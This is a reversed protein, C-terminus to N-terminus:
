EQIFYELDIKKIEYISKSTVGLNFDIMYESLKNGDILAVKPDVSTAYKKADESFRGTTIFIGKRARKGHLVGVFREIEPREVTGELRKAQLYIVDLGLRDEKIIGDIIEDDSRGLSIGAEAKSGGYGLLVMLDVLLQEFFDPSNNKIKLLINAGLESRINENAQQFIEELTQDQEDLKNSTDQDNSSKQPSHAEVFKTFQDLIRTDIRPLGQRHLNLGRETIKFHENSTSELVKAQVFHSKAWAILNDFESIKQAGTPLLEVKAEESLNLAKAIEERAESMSHEQGDAAIDLLPKLFSQFDPLAM